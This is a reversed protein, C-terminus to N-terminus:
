FFLFHTCHRIRGGRGVVPAQLAVAHRIRGGCGVAADVFLSFSVSLPPLFPPVPPSGPDSGQASHWALVGQEGADGRRAESPWCSPWIQPLPPNCAACRPSLLQGMPACDSCRWVWGAVMDRRRVEAVVAASGAQQGGGRRARGGSRVVHVLHPVLSALLLPATIPDAALSSLVLYYLPPHPSSSTPLSLSPSSTFPPSSSCGFLWRRPRPAEAAVAKLDRSRDSEGPPPEHLGRLKSESGPPRGM